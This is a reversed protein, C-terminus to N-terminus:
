IRDHDYRGGTSLFDVVVDVSVGKEFVRPGVVVRETLVKGSPTNSSERVTEIDVGHHHAKIVQRGGFRAFFADAIKEHYSAELRCLAAQTIIHEVQIMQESQIELDYYIIEANNPCASVFKHRYTNM